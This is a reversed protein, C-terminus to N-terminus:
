SQVKPLHQRRLADRDLKAPEKVAIPREHLRQWIRGLSSANSQAFRSFAQELADLRDVLEAPASRRVTDRLRGVEARLEEVQRSRTFLGM